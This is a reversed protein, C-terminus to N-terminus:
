LDIRYVQIGHARGRVDMSGVHHFWDTLEPAGDRTDGSLLIINEDAVKLSKGHQELRAAVNVVDGLAKFTFRRRAGIDGTATLGSNIGVRIKLPPEDPHEANRRDMHHSLARAAACARAAHDPGTVSESFMAVIGDGQFEVVMGREAEVLETASDYYLNAIDAYALQDMSEALATSGVLDTFMITAHENVAARRDAVTSDMLMAAIPKPVLRGVLARAFFYRVSIAALLLLLTTLFVPVAIPPWYLTQSFALSAVALYGIGVSAIGMFLRWGTLMFVALGGLFAMGFVLLTEILPVPRHLRTGHLLNLFATAALEVGGILEAGRGSTPVPFHDDIGADQPDSSGIFVVTNRLDQPLRDAMGPHFVQGIQVTQVSRPPGYMWFPQVQDVAIPLDQGTFAMWAREPMARLDEFKGYRTLYGTAIEGRASDVQFAMTDMAANRLVEAPRQRQMM